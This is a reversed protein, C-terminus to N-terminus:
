KEMFGQHPVVNRQIFHITSKPVTKGNLNGLALFMLNQLEASAKFSKWAGQMLCLHFLGLLRLDSQEGARPKSSHLALGAMGWSRACLRPAKASSAQAARCSGARGRPALLVAREQAILPDLRRRAYSSAQLDGSPSRCNVAASRPLGVTIAARLLTLVHNQSVQATPSCLGAHKSQQPAQWGQHWWHWFSAHLQQVAAPSCVRAGAPVLQLKTTLSCDVLFVIAAPPQQPKPSCICSSSFHTM